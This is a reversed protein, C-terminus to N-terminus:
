RLSSHYGAMAIPSLRMRLHLAALVVLAEAVAPYAALHLYTFLTLDNRLQPFESTQPEKVKVVLDAEWAENPTTAISAGAAEYMEDTFGAGIGAGHEASRAALESSNLRVMQLSPSEDNM